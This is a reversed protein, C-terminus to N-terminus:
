KDRIPVFDIQGLLILPKETHLFQQKKNNVFLLYYSLITGCGLVPSLRFPLFCHCFFLEDFASHLQSWGGFLPTFQDLAYDVVIAYDLIGAHLIAIPIYVRKHARDMLMVHFVVNVSGEIRVRAPIRPLHCIEVVTYDSLFLSM